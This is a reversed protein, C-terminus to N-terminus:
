GMHGETENLGAVPPPAMILSTSSTDSGQRDLQHPSRLEDVTDGAGGSNRHNLEDFSHDRGNSLHVPLQMSSPRPPLAPPVLQPGCALSTPACLKHVTKGCKSCKYGQFFLGKLLKLCNDCSTPREFTTMIFEHGNSVDESLCANGMAEQFCEMWKQKDDATRALLTYANHEETHVLLFAHTWRSSDRRMVRRGAARVVDGSSQSLSLGAESPTLDQVKYDCTKLTEKHVFSDGRSSKSMLILKDFVFIYRM